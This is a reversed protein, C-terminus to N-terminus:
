PRFPGQDESPDSRQPLQNWTDWQEVVFGDADFRLVSTGGLTTESGNEILSAWWSISARNGDV